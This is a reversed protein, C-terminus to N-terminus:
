EIACPQSSVSKYEPSQTGDSWQYVYVCTYQNKGSAYSSINVRNGKECIGNILKKDNGSCICEGYQNAYAQGNLNIDAIAKSNADAVDITSTFTGAPVTYLVLSGNGAGNCNNKSISRSQIENGFVVLGAYNYQYNKVIHSNQDKINKLRQFNDYEFYTPMGKHDTSSKMGVLPEFVFTTILAEKLVPSSRLPALFATVQEKTPVITNRFKEVAVAGGLLSVVTTYDANQVKAIPFTGDYSWIYCEKPGRTKSQMLINGRNDYAHFQILTDLAYGNTKYVQNKPVYLDTFPTYYNTRVLNELTENKFQQQEIVPAIINSDVMKNYPAESAFDTPYYYNTIVNEQKSNEVKVISPKINKSNYEYTTLTSLINQPNFFYDKQTSRSLYVWASKYSYPVFAFQSSTTSTTINRVAFAIKAGTVEGNAIENDVYENTTEKLLQGDNNYVKQNLLLGSLHEPNVPPPFPFGPPSVSPVFSYQSTVLGQGQGTSSLKRKTIEKYGLLGGQTIGLVAQNNSTRLLYNCIAAAGNPSVVYMRYEYDYRPFTLIAGSSRDQESTFNYDYTTISKPGEGVGDYETVKEIRLGPGNRSKNVTSSVKEYTANFSRRLEACGGECEAYGSLLYSGKTLFLTKGKGNDLHYERGTSDKLTIEATSGGNCIDNDYGLENNYQIYQNHDIVWSSSKTIGGSSNCKVQFSFNQKMYVTDKIQKGRQDTGYTNCHYDFTTYGGTPYTIKELVGAKINEPDVNRNAGSLLREGYPMEPILNANILGNYYGWHDQSFSGKDPLALANYTFKYPALAESTSSKESLSELSLRNSRYTSTFDYQKILRENNYIKVATLARDGPQDTRPKLAEFEVHGGNFNISKLRKAQITVYSFSTSFPLAVNCTSNPVFPMTVTQSEPTKYNLTFGEYTFNVSDRTNAAIIKTLYWSSTFTVLGLDGGENPEQLTSEESNFFYQIGNEDVIKFGNGYKIKLPKYPVLVPTFSTTMVFKGSKDLFNYFFEDPESDYFQNAVNEFLNYTAPDLTSLPGKFRTSNLQFGRGQLEDPLGHVSRTVVGGANLSWGLGVWSAIEDVKNGSAHYSLNIPITLGRLKIEYIPISINPLGSYENVPYDGYKGLSAATPSPSIMQSLKPMDQAKLVTMLSFFFVISLYYYKM